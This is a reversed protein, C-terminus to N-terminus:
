PTLCHPQRTKQCDHHDRSAESGVRARSIIRGIAIASELVPRLQGVASSPARRARGICSPVPGPIDPDGLATTLVAAEALVVHVRNEQEVRGPLEDSAKPRPHEFPGM